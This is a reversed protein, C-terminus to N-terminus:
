GSSAATAYDQCRKCCELGELKKALTCEGHIACAFVKVRTNGRCSACPELRIEKGQNVCPPRAADISHPTARRIKHVCELRDTPAHELVVPMAIRRADFGKGTPEVFFCRNGRVTCKFAPKGDAKVISQEATQLDYQYATTKGDDFASILLRDPADTVYSVREIYGPVTLTLTRGPERLYIYDRGNAWVIRRQFVFGATAKTVLRPPRLRDLTPGRMTYLHLLPLERSNGAIFSVNWGNADWWAAPSCEMADFGTPLPKLVKEDPLLYHLKWRRPGRPKCCLLVPNGQADDALFPMHTGRGDNANRLHEELHPM